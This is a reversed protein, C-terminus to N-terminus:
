EGYLYEDMTSVPAVKEVAVEPMVCHYGEVKQPVHVDGVKTLVMTYTGDKEYSGGADKCENSAATSAYIAWCIMIVVLAPLIVVLVRGEWDERKWFNILKM